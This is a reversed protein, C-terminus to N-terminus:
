EDDDGTTVVDEEDSFRVEGIFQGRRYECALSSSTKVFQNSNGTVMFKRGHELLGFQTVVEQM